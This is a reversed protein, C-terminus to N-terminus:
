RPNIQQLRRRCRRCPASRSARALKQKRAAQDGRGPTPPRDRSRSTVRSITAKTRDRNSRARPARCGIWGPSTQLRVCASPHERAFRERGGARNRGAACRTVERRRARGGVGRGRRTVSAPRCRASGPWQAVVPIASTARRAAAAPTSGAGGAVAAVAPTQFRVAPLAPIRPGSRRLGTGPRKAPGPRIPAPGLPPLVFGLRVSTRNGRGSRRRRRILVPRPPWRRAMRRRDGRDAWATAM